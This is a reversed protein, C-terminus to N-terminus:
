KATRAVASLVETWLVSFKKVVAPTALMIVVAGDGRGVFVGTGNVGVGVSLAVLM